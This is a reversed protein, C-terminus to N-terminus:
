EKYTLLKKLKELTFFVEKEINFRSFSFRLASAAKSLPIEMNLLVRSPELAGSSCASGHSACIGALDLKALLVEGEMGVFTANTTNCIRPGKGNIEVNPLEMLGKEFLTRLHLMHSIASDQNELFIRVAEELALIAALNETGGRRGGEQEGGTLLPTFPFSKRVFAFAIGKPAHIKHGSGCFAGIGPFISVPEKGVQAVGDVLLPIKRRHALNAIAEIDTKVGTENNVSMLAILHTNPRLGKEVEEVTPAGKMGPQLFTVESGEKELVKATSYVAAHELNSTLLHSGKKIAGRIFTNLAETASSFFIVEAPEVKFAEALTRRANNLAMKAHQGYSHVSSPNGQINQLADVFTSLVKPDLFTTGNNDLYVKGEKM